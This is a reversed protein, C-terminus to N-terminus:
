SVSNRTSFLEQLSKVSVDDKEVHSVEFCAFVCLYFYILMFQYHSHTFIKETLSSVESPHLCM